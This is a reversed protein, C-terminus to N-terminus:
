HCQFVARTELCGSCWFVYIMGVDAFMFSNRERLFRGLDTRDNAISDIQAVFTMPSQCTNCMPTENSQIWLPKGGFRTRSGPQPGNQGPGTPTPSGAVSLQVQLEPFVGISESLAERAMGDLINNLDATVVSVYEEGLGDAYRQIASLHQLIAEFSASEGSLTSLAYEKLLPMKPVESLPGLHREVHARLPQLPIDNKEKV